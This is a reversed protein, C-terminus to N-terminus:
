NFSRIRRKLEERRLRLEEQTIALFTESMFKAWQEKLKELSQEWDGNVRSSRTIEAEHNVGAARGRAFCKERRVLISIVTAKVSRM